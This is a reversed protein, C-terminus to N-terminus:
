SKMDLIVEKYVVDVMLLMGNNIAVEPKNLSIPLSNIFVAGRLRKSLKEFFSPNGTLLPM